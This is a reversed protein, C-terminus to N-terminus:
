VAVSLGDEDVPTAPPIALICIGLGDFGFNGGGDTTAGFRFGSKRVIDRAVPTVLVTQTVIRKIEGYTLPYM